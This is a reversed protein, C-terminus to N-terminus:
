VRDAVLTSLEKTHTHVTWTKNVKLKFKGIFNREKIQLLTYDNNQYIPMINFKGRSCQYLHKSVNLKRNEEIKINSKHLSKRTNLAQTSGIYIEKCENCKKYFSKDEAEFYAETKSIVEEISGFRKGQLMRKLDSFLWYDSSTLNPSHPPHPLLKFHLEYLKAMTAISKHCPANDQHFLVKKKKIQLWKKAIEEKLHM